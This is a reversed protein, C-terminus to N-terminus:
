GCMDQPSSLCYVKKTSEISIKLLIFEERLGQDDKELSNM